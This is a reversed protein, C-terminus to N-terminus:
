EKRLRPGTARKTRLESAAPSPEAQTVVSKDSEQASDVLTSQGISFQGWPQRATLNLVLERIAPYLMDHAAETAAHKAEEDTRSEEVEIFCLCVVDMFYPAAPNDTPDVKVRLESLYRQQDPATKKTSINSDIIVEVIEPSTKTRPDFKPNAFIKIQPFLHEEFTVSTTM